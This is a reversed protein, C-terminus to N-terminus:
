EATTRADNPAMPEPLRQESESVDSKDPTHEGVIRATNEVAVKRKQPSRRATTAFNALQRAIDTISADPSNKLEEVVSASGKSPSIPQINPKAVSKKPKAKPEEQISVVIAPQKRESHEIAIPQKSSNYAIIGAVAAGMALVLGTAFAYGWRSGQQALQASRIAGKVAWTLQMREEDSLNPIQDPIASIVTKRSELESRCQVCEQAHLRVQMMEEPSLDGYLYAGMLEQVQRCSMERM